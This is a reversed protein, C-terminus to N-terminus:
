LERTRAQKAIGIMVQFQKTIGTRERMAARKVPRVEVACFWWKREM